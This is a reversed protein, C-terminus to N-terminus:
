DAAHGTTDLLRSLREYPVGGFLVGTSKNLTFAFALAATTTEHKSVPVKGKRRCGVPVQQEVKEAVHAESWAYDALTGETQGTYAFSYALATRNLTAEAVQAVADLQQEPVASQGAPVTTFVEVVHYEPQGPATQALVVGVNEQTPLHKLYTVATVTGDAETLYNSGTEEFEPLRHNVSVGCLLGIDKALYCWDQTSLTATVKAILCDAKGFGKKM